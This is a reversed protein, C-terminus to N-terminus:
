KFRVVVRKGDKKEVKANIDFFRHVGKSVCKVCLDSEERHKNLDELTTTLFNDDGVTYTMNCCHLVSNDSRVTPFAKYVPCSLHRNKYAVELQEEIPIILMENARYMEEPLDKGEIAYEYVKGPFINALVPFFYFGLKEALKEIFDYEEELNHKYMHYVLRVATDSNYKELYDRLKYLNKEFNIWNGGTHTMEYNDGVGSCAVTLMDPGAKVIAELHKNYNLNSSIDTAIGFESTISIIEPLQPHLFPEGWLYLCVSNMFPIERIMKDIVKRYNDVSMFGKQQATKLGMECSICKLNCSGVIEITPLYQTLKTAIVFDKNEVFGIDKLRNLFVKKTNRHKTAVVIFTNQFNQKEFFYDPDIVPLGLKQNNKFKRTDLFGKVNLGLKSFQRVTGMGELNVSYVFVERLGILEKINEKTFEM